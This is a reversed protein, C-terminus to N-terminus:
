MELKKGSSDIPGPGSPLPRYTSSSSSSSSTYGGALSKRRTASSSRSVTSSTNYSTGYTTAYGSGSSRMFAASATPMTLCWSLQFCAFLTFNIFLMLCLRECKCNKFLLDYHNM